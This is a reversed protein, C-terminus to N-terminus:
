QPGYLPHVFDRPYVAMQSLGRSFFDLLSLNGKFGVPSLQFMNKLLHFYLLGLRHALGRIWQLIQNMRQTAWSFATPDRGLPEFITGLGGPRAAFWPFCDVTGVRKGLRGQSSFTFRIKNQKNPVVLPGFRSFWSTM